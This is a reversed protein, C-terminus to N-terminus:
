LILVVLIGSILGIAGGKFLIKRAKKELGKERQVHLSDSVAYAKNEDKLLKNEIQLIVRSGESKQLETSYSAVLEKLSTNLTDCDAAVVSMYVISDKHTQPKLTKALNYKAQLVEVKKEAKLREQHASDLEKNKEKLTFRLALVSKEDRHIIEKLSDLKQSPPLVVENKSNLLWGALFGLALAVLLHIPKIM